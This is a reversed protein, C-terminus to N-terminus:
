VSQPNKSVKPYLVWTYWSLSPLYKYHLLNSFCASIFILMSIAPVMHTSFDSVDFMGLCEWSHSFHQMFYEHQVSSDSYGIVTGWDSYQWFITVYLWMCTAQDGDTATKSLAANRQTMQIQGQSNQTHWTTALPVQRTMCHLYLKFVDQKAHQTSLVLFVLIKFGRFYRINM